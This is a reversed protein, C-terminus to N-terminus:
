ADAEGEPHTHPPPYAPSKNASMVESIAAANGAEINRRVIEMARAPTIARQDQNAIAAGTVFACLALVEVSTLDHRECWTKVDAALAAKAEMLKAEREPTM